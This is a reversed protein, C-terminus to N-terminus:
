ELDGKKFFHDRGIMTSKLKSKKAKRVVTAQSKQIMKAVQKTTYYNEEIIDKLDLNAICEGMLSQIEEILIKCEYALIYDKDREAEELKRKYTEIRKEFIIRLIIM